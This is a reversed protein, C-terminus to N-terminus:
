GSPILSYSGPSISEFGLMSLRPFNKDGPCFLKMKRVQILNQHYKIPETFIEFIMCLKILIVIFLILIHNEIPIPSDSHHQEKWSVCSFRCLAVFICKFSSQFM